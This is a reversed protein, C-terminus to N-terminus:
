SRFLVGAPACGANMWGVAGAGCAATKPRCRWGPRRIGRYGRGGPAVGALGPLRAPWVMIGISESANIEGASMAIPEGPAVARRRNLPERLSLVRRAM